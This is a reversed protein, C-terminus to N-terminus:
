KTSSRKLKRQAALIHSCYSAKMTFYKCDCAWNDKRKNYSVEHEEDTGPVKFYVTTETELMKIESTLRDAKDLRSKFVKKKMHSKARDLEVESSVRTFTNLKPDFKKFSEAPVYKVNNLNLLVNEFKFIEDSISDQFANISPATKYFAHMPEIKGNEHKPVVADYGKELYSALLEVAKKEILPMEVSTLFAYKTRCTKLGTLAKTLPSKGYRSILIDETFFKEYKRQHNFNEVVFFIKQFSDKLKHFTVEALTQGYVKRLGPDVENQNLGTLLIASTGKDM